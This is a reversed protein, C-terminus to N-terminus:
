RTPKFDEKRIGHRQLLNFLSRPSISAQRAALGIRGETDRLLDELYAQEFETVVEQRALRLPKSALSSGSSPGSGSGIPELFAPAPARPGEVLAAPLDDVEVLEGQALLVARELVNILERVNGPWGYEILIKMAEPSIGRVPSAFSRRFTELYRRILSPIDDRRERLPPLTLSVVALRFFLDARFRQNQVADELDRNTAAMIRVDVRVPQEGGLRQITRDELSRLLKAQLHPPLDGIEDLFLTGGHALEFYGRRARSAGTFAGKEHGFLESELIGEALASCNLTIFPGTSRRSEGHIARALREKGVGTEGLLLITADSRAVRRATAIVRDMALSGTEMEGLTLVRDLREAKWRETTKEKLRRIITRLAGALDEIGLNLNLVALAGAALLAARSHPDERDAMVLIEPREPLDQLSSIWVDSLGGSNGLEVVLLDVEEVQLRQWLEDPNGLSEFPVGEMELLNEVRGRGEGPSMLVLVRILM